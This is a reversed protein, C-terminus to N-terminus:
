RSIEEKSINSRVAIDREKQWTKLATALKKDASSLGPSQGSTRVYKLFNNAMIEFMASVVPDSDKAYIYSIFDKGKILRIDQDRSSVGHATIDRSSVHSVVFENLEVEGPIHRDICWFKDGVELVSTELEFGNTRTKLM